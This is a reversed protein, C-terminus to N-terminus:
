GGSLDSDLPYINVFCLMSDVPYHNIGHISNDVREVALGQILYSSVFIFMSTQKKPEQDVSLKGSSLLNYCNDCVRLPKSSQAPLLFKKTSCNGCM